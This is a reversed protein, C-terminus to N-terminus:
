DRLYPGYKKAKLWTRTSAPCIQELSTTAVLARICQQDANSDLELHFYCTAQRANKYEIYVFQRPHGQRRGHATWVWVPCQHLPNFVRQQWLTTDALNSVPPYSFTPCYHAEFM